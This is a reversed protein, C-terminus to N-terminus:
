LRVPVVLVPGEHGVAHLSAAIEHDQIQVRGGPVVQLHRCVVVRSEGDRFVLECGQSDSSTLDAEVSHVRVLTVLQASKVGNPCM